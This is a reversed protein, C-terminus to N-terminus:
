PAGNVQGPLPGTVDTRIGGHADGEVCVAGLGLVEGDPPVPEAAMGRVRTTIPGRSSGGIRVSGAAGATAPRGRGEALSLAGQAAVGIVALVGLAVWWSAGPHGSVVNTVVGSATAVAVSLGAMTARAWGQVAM